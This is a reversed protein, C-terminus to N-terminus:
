TETKDVKLRGGKEGGGGTDTEFGTEGVALTPNVSAWNAATDSRLQILDNRPVKRGRRYLM